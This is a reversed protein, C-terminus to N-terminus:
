HQPEYVLTSQSLYTEGNVVYDNNEWYVTGGITVTSCSGYYGKGISHSAASGKTASVSTVGSTITITGCKADHGSGIDAAYPPSTGTGGSSANFKGTGKITLTKNQPVYIGPYYHDFGRM